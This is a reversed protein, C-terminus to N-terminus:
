HQPGVLSVVCNICVHVCMYNYRDYVSAYGSNALEALMGATEATHGVCSEDM